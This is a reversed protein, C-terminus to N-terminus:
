EVTCKVIFHIFKVVLRRAKAGLLVILRIYKLNVSQINQYNIMSFLFEVYFYVLNFNDTFEVTKFNESVNEKPVYCGTFISKFKM